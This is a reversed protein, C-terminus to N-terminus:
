ADVGDLADTLAGAELRLTRQARAAVSPDHTVVLLACGRERSVTFLLDAVAERARPDLAGTPEDALLVDPDTILARAVAARQREGGSLMGTPTGDQPVGLESLLEAARRYADRHEGGDLLVPLAVNEVPSLEPLLEGFQFVVGLHARRIRALQKPRLGTLRHTGVDVTGGDPAVLGLICMLLTSKGSGSPGTVAVSEGPEIDLDVGDLLVREGLRHSLGRVHLGMSGGATVM